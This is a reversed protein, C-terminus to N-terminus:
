FAAKRLPTASGKDKSIGEFLYGKGTLAPHMAYQHLWELRVVYPSYNPVEENARARL